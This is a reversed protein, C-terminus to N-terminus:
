ASEVSAPELLEAPVELPPLSELCRPSAHDRRARVNASCYAFALRDRRARLARAQAAAQDRLAGREDEIARLRQELGALEARAQDLERGLREIAEARERRAQRLPRMAELIQERRLQVEKAHARLEAERQKTLLELEQERRRREDEQRRRRLEESRKREEDELERQRRMRERARKAELREIRARERRAERQAARRNRLTRPDHYVFSAATAGGFVLLNIVGFALTGLLPGIGTDGGIERLYGDRVLAVVVIVAIPVLLFTTLLGREVATREPRTLLLGAFHAMAVLAVAVTVTMVYTLWDAEHFLRFAFANLPIEGVVIVLIMPWYVLPGFGRWTADAAEASFAFDEAPAPVPPADPEPEPAPTLAPTAAAGAIPVPAPAPAAPADATPLEELRAQLRELREDEEATRVRDDDLATARRAELESVALATAPARQELGVQEAELARDAQRWRQVVEHLRQDARALIERLDFPLADQDVAPVGARGDRKGRRRADHLERWERLM